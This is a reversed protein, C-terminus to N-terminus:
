RRPVRYRNRAPASGASAWRASALLAILILVTAVGVAAPSVLRAVGAALVLVYVWILQAILRQADSRPV